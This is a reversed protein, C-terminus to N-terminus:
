LELKMVFKRYIKKLNQKFGSHRWAYILPDCLSNCAGLLYLTGLTLLELPVCEYGHKMIDCKVYMIVALYYPAWTSVFCLTVILVTKVAKFKSPHNSTRRCCFRIKGPVQKRIENDKSKFSAKEIEYMENNSHKSESITLIVPSNSADGTFGKNFQGNNGKFERIKDVTKVASRLILLYLVCVLIIVFLVVLSLVDAPSFSVCSYVLMQLRQFHPWEM